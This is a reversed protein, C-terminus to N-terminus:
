VVRSAILLAGFVLYALGGVMLLLRALRIQNVGITDFYGEPRWLARLSVRAGERAHRSWAIVQLMTSAVCCGVFALLLGTGVVVFFQQNM